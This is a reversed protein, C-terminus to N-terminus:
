RQNVKQLSQWDDQLSCLRYRLVPFGENVSTATHRLSRALQQSCAMAQILAYANTPMCLFSVAIAQKSVTIKTDERQCLCAKLRNYM